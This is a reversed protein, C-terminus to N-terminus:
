ANRQVCAVPTTISPSKGPPPKWLTARPTDASPDTTTPELEPALPLSANRQVCAVPITPSPSKGPPM